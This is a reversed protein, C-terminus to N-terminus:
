TFYGVPNVDKHDDIVLKKDISNWKVLSCIHGKLKIKDMDINKMRQIADNENAISIIKDCFETTSPCLDIYKHDIKDITVLEEMTEIGFHENFLSKRFNKLDVGNNPQYAGICMETDGNPNLSRENVNASGLIVFEDDIIMLKSHVYIMFSVSDVKQDRLEDIKNLLKDKQTKYRDNIQIMFSNDEPIKEITRLYFFNLYDTVQVNAYAPDVNEKLYEIEDQIERYMFEKTKHQYDLTQQVFQIKLPDLSFYSEIKRIGEPYYPHIIYVKFEQKPGKRLMEKIKNVITEPIRNKIDREPSSYKEGSGIFYQNEIYIFKEANKISEIYAQEISAETNGFSNKSHITRYLQINWSNKHNPSIVSIKSIDLKPLEIDHNSINWREEFNKYIDFVLEGQIKCHIDHWPERFVGEPSYWDNKFNEFEFLSHNKDDFRGHALDIGGLFGVYKHTNNLTTDCLVMKQHHSSTKGYFSENHNTQFDFFINENKLKELAEKSLENDTGMYNKEDPWILLYVKVGEKAKKHLLEILTLTNSDNRILHLNHNFQWGAIFIFEQSSDLVHYLTQFYNRNPYLDDFHADQYFEMLNDNRMRFRSNFSWKEEMQDQLMKILEKNKKKLYIVIGDYLTVNEDIEVSSNEDFEIIMDELIKNEPHMFYHHYLICYCIINVGFQIIQKRRESSFIKQYIESLFSFIVDFKQSLEISIVHSASFWSETCFDIMFKITESVNENNEIKEVLTQASLEIKKKINLRLSRIWSAKKVDPLIQLISKMLEDIGYPEHNFYEKNYNPCEENNCFWKHDGLKKIKGKWCQFCLYPKTRADIELVDDSIPTKVVNILDGEIINSNCAPIDHFQGVNSCWQQQTDNQITSEGCVECDKRIENKIFCFSKIYSYKTKYKEFAKLHKTTIKDAMTFVVIVNMNKFNREITKFEEEMREMKMAYLVLDFKVNEAFNFEILANSQTIGIGESDYIFCSLDKNEFTRHQLDTSTFTGTDVTSVRTVNGGQIYNILSSKGINAQGCLYINPKEDIQKLKMLNTDFTNGSFQIKLSNISLIPVINKVDTGDLDLFRLKSFGKLISIDIVPCNCLSLEVLEKSQELPSIDTVNTENLNLEKLSSFGKLFDINEISCKSLSLYELEQLKQLISFDSIKCGALSLKKLKKFHLLISIDTIPCKSLYLDELYNLDKLATLDKVNTGTLNLVRIKKFEKLYTIDEIPCKWLHIEELDKLNQLSSLDSTDFLEISKNSNAKLDIAPKSFQFNLLDYNENKEPTKGSKKKKGKKQATKILENVQSISIHEETTSNQINSDNEPDKQIDIHTKKEQPAEDNKDEERKRKM